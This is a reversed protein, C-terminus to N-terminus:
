RLIWRLLRRQPPQAAPATATTRGREAAEAETAAASEQRDQVQGMVEDMWEPFGERDGLRDSPRETM